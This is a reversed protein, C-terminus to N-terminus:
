QTLKKSTDNQMCRALNLGLGWPFYSGNPRAVSGILEYWNWEATSFRGTKHLKKNRKWDGVFKAGEYNKEM